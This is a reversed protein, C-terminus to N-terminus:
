LTLLMKANVLRFTTYMRRTDFGDGLLSEQSVIIYEPSLRSQAISGLSVVEAVRDHAKVTFPLSILLNGKNYSEGGSSHCLLTFGESQSSGGATTDLEARVFVVEYDGEAILVAEAPRFDGLLHGAPVGRGLHLHSIVVQVAEAGPAPLVALLLNADTLVGLALDLEHGLPMVNTIAVSASIAFKTVYIKIHDAM